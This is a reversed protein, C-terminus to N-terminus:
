LNKIFDWYAQRLIQSMRDYGIDQLAIKLKTNPLLGIPMEVVGGTVLTKFDLETLSIRIENM